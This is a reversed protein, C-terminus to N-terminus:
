KAKMAGAVLGDFQAKTLDLMLGKGNKGFAEVPVAVAGSQGAVVVGAGSSGQVTGLLKGRRDFVSAGATLDTTVAAVTRLGGGAGAPGANGQRRAREVAETIGFDRDADHASLSVGPGAGGPTEAPTGMAPVAQALTGSSCCLAVMVTLHRVSRM